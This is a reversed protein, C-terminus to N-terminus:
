RSLCCQPAKFIEVFQDHNEGKGLPVENSATGVMLVGADTGISSEGATALATSETALAPSPKM